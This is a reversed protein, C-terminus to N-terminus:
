PPKKVPEKMLVTGPEELPKSNVPVLPEKIKLEL